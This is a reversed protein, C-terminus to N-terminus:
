ECFSTMSEEVLHSIIAFPDKTGALSEDPIHGSTESRERLSIDNHATVAITIALCYTSIIREHV